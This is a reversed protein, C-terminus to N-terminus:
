HKLLKIYSLMYINRNFRANLNHKLLYFYFSSFLVEKGPKEASSSSTKLRMRDSVDTPLEPTVAAATAAAAADGETAVTPPPLLEPPEPAPEPGPEPPPEPEEPELEPDELVEPVGKPPASRM